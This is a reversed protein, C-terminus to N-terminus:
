KFIKLREIFYINLRVSELLSDTVYVYLADAIVDNRDYTSYIVIRCLPAMKRSIAIAFTKQLSGM